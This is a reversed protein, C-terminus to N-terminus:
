QIIGAHGIPYALFCFDKTQNDNLDGLVVRARARKNLHIIQFIGFMLSRSCLNTYKYM